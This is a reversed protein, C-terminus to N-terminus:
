SLPNQKTGKREGGVGSKFSPAVADALDRFRKIRAGYDTTRVGFPPSTPITKNEDVNMIPIPGARGQSVSAWFISEALSSLAESGRHRLLRVRRIYTV